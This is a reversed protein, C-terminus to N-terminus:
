KRIIPPYYQKNWKKPFIHHIIRFFILFTPIYISFADSIKTRELSDESSLPKEDQKESM